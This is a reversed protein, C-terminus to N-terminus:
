GDSRRRPTHEDCRALPPVPPVYILHKGIYRHGDCIAFRWFRFVPYRCGLCRRCWVSQGM